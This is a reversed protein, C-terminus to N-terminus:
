NFYINYPYIPLFLNPEIYDSVNYETGGSTFVGIANNDSQHGTTASNRNANSNRNRRNRNSNTPHDRSQDDEECRKKSKRCPGCAHKARVRSFTKTQESDNEIVFSNKDQYM